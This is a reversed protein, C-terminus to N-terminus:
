SAYQLDIRHPDFVDAPDCPRPGPVFDLSIVPLMTLFYRSEEVPPARLPRRFARSRWQVFWRGSSFADPRDKAHWVGHKRGNHLVYRVTRWAQQCSVIALAFYRDAFVSGVRGRWFRNLAKAIRIMLGQMGRTLKRRGEAEVVLHLHDRQVSFEVLRFGDKSKGNRFARELVRYTKPTRLWPLGRRIRLVVHAAGHIEPRAVHPVKSSRRKNTVPAASAATRAIRKRRRLAFLEGQISTQHRRQVRKM